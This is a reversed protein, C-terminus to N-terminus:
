GQRRDDPSLTKEVMFQGQPADFFIVNREIHNHLNVLGVKDVTVILVSQDLFLFRISEAEDDFKVSAIRGLQLKAIQEDLFEGAKEQGLTRTLLGPNLVSGDGQKYIWAGDFELTFDGEEDEYTEGTKQNKVRWQRMEGLDIWLWTGISRYVRRIPLGIVKKFEREAGEFTIVRTEHKNM